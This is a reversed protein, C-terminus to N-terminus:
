IQGDLFRAIESDSVAIEDSDIVERYDEALTSHPVVAPVGYARAVKRLLDHSVPKTLVEDILLIAAVSAYQARYGQECDLVRGGLEVVGLVPATRSLYRNIIGLDTTAYIGCGHGGNGTCKEGPAAIKGDRDCYHAENYAEDSDFRARANCAAVLSDDKPWAGLPASLAGAMWADKDRAKTYGGAPTTSGLTQHARDYTWTRFALYTAPVDPITLDTM